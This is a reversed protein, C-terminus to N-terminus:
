VMKFTQLVTSERWNPGLTYVILSTKPFGEMFSTFMTEHLSLLILLMYVFTIKIVSMVRHHLPAHNQNFPHDEADYYERSCARDFTM